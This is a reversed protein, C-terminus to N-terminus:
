TASTRNQAIWAARFRYKVSKYIDSRVADFIQIERYYDAQPHNSSAPFAENRRSNKQSSHRAFIPQVRFWISISLPNPQSDAQYRSADLPWNNYSNRLSPHDRCSLLRPYLQDSRLSYLSRMINEVSHLFHLQLQTGKRAWHRTWMSVSPARLQHHFDSCPCPIALHLRRRLTQKIYSSECIIVFGHIVEELVCPIDIYNMGAM